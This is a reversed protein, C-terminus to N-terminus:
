SPIVFSEVWQEFADVQSKDDGTAEVHVSVSRGGNNGVVAEAHMPTTANTYSVQNLFDRLKRREITLNKEVKYKM